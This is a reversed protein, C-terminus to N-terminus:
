TQIGLGAYHSYGKVNLLGQIDILTSFGKKFRQGGTTFLFYTLKISPALDASVRWFRISLAMVSKTSPFFHRTWRFAPIPADLDVWILCIHNIIKVSM